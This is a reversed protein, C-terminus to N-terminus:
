GGKKTQADHRETEKKHFEFKKRRIEDTIQKIERSSLEQKTSFHKHKNVKM